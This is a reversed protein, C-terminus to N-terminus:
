RSGAERDLNYLNGGHSFLYYNSLMDKANREEEVQESIFWELFNTVKYEEEVEAERYLENIMSTVLKEHELARKLIDEVEDYSEDTVAISYFKVPLDNDTMFNYIRMGHSIEEKAQEKYWHAYGVLGKKDLVSAFYLYLYASYFEANIQENLMSVLTNSM